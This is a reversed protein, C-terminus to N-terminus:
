SREPMQGTILLFLLVVDDFLVVWNKLTIWMTMHRHVAASSTQPKSWHLPLACRSVCQTHVAQQLVCRNNALCLVSCLFWLAFAPPSHFVLYTVCPVSWWEAVVFGLTSHQSDSSHLAPSRLIFCIVQLQGRHVASDQGSSERLSGNPGLHTQHGPCLPASPPPQYHLLGTEESAWPGCEPNEQLACLM